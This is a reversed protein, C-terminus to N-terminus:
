QSSPYMQWFMFSSPHIWKEYLRPYNNQQRYSNTPKQNNNCLSLSLFSPLSSSHHFRRACFSMASIFRPKTTTTIDSAIM